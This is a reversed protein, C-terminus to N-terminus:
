LHKQLRYIYIYIIYIYVARASRAQQKIHEDLSKKNNEISDEMKKIRDDVRKKQRNVGTDIKIRFEDVSTRMESEFQAQGSMINSVTQSIKADVAKRNSEIEGRMIVNLERGKEDVKKIERNLAKTNKALNEKALQLKGELDTYNERSVESVHDLQIKFEGTEENIHNELASVIKEFRNVEKTFNENIMKRHQFSSLELESLKTRNDTGEERLTALEAAVAQQTAELAKALRDVSTKLMTEAKTLNLSAQEDTGKVIESVTMLGEQLNGLMKKERELSTKEDQKLKEKMGSVKEDLYRLIDEELKIRNATEDDIRKECTRIVDKLYEVERVHLADLKSTAPITGGLDGQPRLGNGLGGEEKVRNIAKIFDTQQTHVKERLDGVTKKLEGFNLERRAREDGILEKVQILEMGVEVSNNGSGEAQMKRMQMNKTIGELTRDMSGFQFDHETVRKQIAALKESVEKMSGKSTERLVVLGDQQSILKSQVEKWIYTDRSQITSLERQLRNPIEEMVQKLEREFHRKLEYVQVEMDRMRKERQYELVMSTPQSSTGPGQINSRQEYGISHTNRKNTQHTPTQKSRSDPRIPPLFKNGDEERSPAREFDSDREM